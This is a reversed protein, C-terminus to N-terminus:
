HYCSGEQIRLRPMHRKKQSNPHSIGIRHPPPCTNQNSQYRRHVKNCGVETREREVVATVEEERVVAETDEEERVVVDM